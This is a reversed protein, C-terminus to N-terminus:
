PFLPEPNLDFCRPRETASALALQRSSAAQPLELVWFLVPVLAVLGILLELVVPPALESVALSTPTVGVVM